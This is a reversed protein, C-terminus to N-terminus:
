QGELIAILNVVASTAEVCLAADQHAATRRHQLEIALSLAAKAHKRSAENSAGGLVSAFYASLMRGADTASPVIGDTSHHRIPDFVAQAVSILAERCFLGVTQFDEADKGSRLSHHAKSLSRNVVDWPSTM